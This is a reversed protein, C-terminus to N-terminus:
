PKLKAPLASAEEPSLENLSQVFCPEFVGGEGAKIGLDVPACVTHGGRMELLLKADFYRLTQCERALSVRYIRNVGIRLYITRTDAAHWNTLDAGTFCRQVGEAIAPHGLALFVALWLAGTRRM